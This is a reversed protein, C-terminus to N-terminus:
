TIFIEFRNFDRLNYLINQNSVQYYLHKDFKKEHDNSRSFVAALSASNAVQPPASTAVPAPASQPASSANAVTTTTTQQQPQTTSAADGSNVNVLSYKSMWSLSQISADIRIQSEVGGKTELDIANTETLAYM